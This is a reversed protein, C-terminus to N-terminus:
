KKNTVIFDDDDDDAPAFCLLWATTDSYQIVSRNGSKVQGHEGWRFVRRFALFAAGVRTCASSATSNMGRESAGLM